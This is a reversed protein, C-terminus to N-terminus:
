KLIDKRFAIAILHPVNKAKLKRRLIMILGEVTRFSLDLDTAIKRAGAGASLAKIIKIERTTLEKSSKATKTM